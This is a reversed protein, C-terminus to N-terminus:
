KGEKSKNVARGGTHRVADHLDTPILVMTKADEVHHWTLDKPTDKLGMIRNAKDNDRDDGTIKDLEVRYIRGSADVHTYPEFRPFGKSDFEVSNPYKTQLEQPLKELPYKGGALYGNYPYSQNIKGVGEPYIRKELISLDPGNYAPTFLVSKEPATPTFGPLQWKQRDSIIEYGPLSTLEQAKDQQDPTSLISPRPELRPFGIVKPKYADTDAVLPNLQPLHSVHPMPVEPAPMESTTALSKVVPKAKLAAQQNHLMDGDGELLITIKKVDDTAKYAIAVGISTSIYKVLDVGIRLAGAALQVSPAKEPHAEYKKHIHYALAVLEAKESDEFHGYDSNIAEKIEQVLDADAISLNAPLKSYKERIHKQAANENSKSRGLKSFFGKASGGAAVGTIENPDKSGLSMLHSSLTDVCFNVAPMAVPAIISHRIIGMTRDTVKGALEEALEQREAAYDQSQHQELERATKIIAGRNRRYPGFDIEEINKAGNTSKRKLDELELKKVEQASPMNVAVGRSSFSQDIGSVFTSSPQLLTSNFQMNDKPLVQNMRLIEIISNIDGKDLFQGAMKGHMVEPLKENAAQETAIIKAKLDECFEGLLEKIELAAELMGFGTTAVKMGVAAVVNGSRAAM